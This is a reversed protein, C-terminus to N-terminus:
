KHIAVDKAKLTMKRLTRASGTAQNYALKCVAAAVRAGLTPLLKLERLVDVSNSTGPTLTYADESYSRTFVLSGTSGTPSNHELVVEQGSIHAKGGGPKIWGTEASAAIATGNDTDGTEFEDIRGDGTSGANEDNWGYLHTGDSRRGEAMATLSRILQLSWGLPEGDGAMLARLGSENSASFDYATQRNPHSGSARYNVWLVGGMIRASAYASDNDAATAAVCLPLEYSFDGRQEPEHVYTHRSLFFENELDAAFVGHETLYPVFRNGPVVTNWAKCGRYKNIVSMRYDDDIGSGSDRVNRIAYIANAFPVVFGQDVPGGGMSIGADGDPPEFRNSTRGSFNNAASKAQGPSAVTMWVTQKKLTENDLYDKTFYLFGPLAGSIVRQYGSDALAVIPADGLETYYTLTKTGATITGVFTLQTDSDIRSIYAGVTVGTGSVLNGVAAKALGGAGKTITQGSVVCSDIVRSHPTLSTTSADPNAGPCLQARWQQGDDSFSTANIRDVLQQLTTADTFLFTKTNTISTGDTQVLVLTGIGSAGGVSLFMYSGDAAYATTSTDLLNLDYDAARGVPALVIASPNEGGYSHCVRMDGGFIYRARPPMIHDFRIFAKAADLTLSEDTGYYDDYTTTTNDKIEAIVRMDFPDLQLNDDQVASIKPSRLLLRGVVGHPGIPINSWTVRDYTASPNALDVTFINYGNLLLQSPPRAQCPMWVSGDEFRFAVSHYFRDSGKWGGQSQVIAQGISVYAQAVRVETVTAVTEFANFQLRLDTWDTISAQEPGTLAYAATQWASLGSGATAIFAQIIARQTAGEMLRIAVSGIGALSKNVQWTFRIQVTDFITPVYGPDALGITAAAGNPASVIYDSTDLSSEDISQYLNVASAAQNLWAGDTIDADPRIPVTGDDSITSGKALTGSHLPPLPGSPTLRNHVTSSGTTITMTLQAVDYGTAGISAANMDMTCGDTGAGLLTVVEGASLTYSYDQFSSSLVGSTQNTVSVAARFLQFHFVESGAGSAKKIRFTITITPSGSFPIGGSTWFVWTLNTGPSFGTETVYTSEDLTSENVYNQLNTSGGDQGRWNNISGSTATPRASIASGATGAREGNWRSPIGLLSPFYTWNGVKMFRRSGSVFFRRAFESTGRTIGGDGSDYWLPTVKYTQESGLAAYTSVGFESGLTYNSNAVQDRVYVQSFRGDDLGSAVTEKTVLSMLTPVSDSAISSSSFEEMWRGKANAPAAADTWKAPLLGVSAGFTDFRQSQGKRRKWGGTRPVYLFDDGDALYDRPVQDATKASMRGRWPGLEIDDIPLAQAAIRAAWRDLEYEIGLDRVLMEAVAM